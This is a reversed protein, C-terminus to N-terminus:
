QGPQGSQGSQGTQRAWAVADTVDTESIDLAALKERVASAPNIHVPTLIIRDGEAAIDFYEVGGLRSAIAKPLTLQNKCTMKALM